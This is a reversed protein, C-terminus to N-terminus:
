EGGQQPAAPLPEFRGDKAALAARMHMDFPDGGMIHHAEHLKNFADRLWEPSDPSLNVRIGDRAALIRDYVQEARKQREDLLAVVREDDKVAPKAALAARAIKAIEECIFDASLGHSTGLDAKEIIKRLVESLRAEAPPSAILASRIRSAYDAEAAAKAAELTHFLDTGANPAFGSFTGDKERQIDYEGVLSGAKWTEPQWETPTERDWELPRVAVAPEPGVAQLYATIAVRMRRSDCISFEIPQGEDYAEIAAELANADLM